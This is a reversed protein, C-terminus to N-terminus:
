NGETEDAAPASPDTAAELEAKATEYNAIAAELERKARDAKRAARVVNDQLVQYDAEAQAQDWASMTGEVEVTEAAADNATGVGSAEHESM